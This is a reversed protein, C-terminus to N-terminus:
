CMHVIKALDEDITYCYELEQSGNYKKYVVTRGTHDKEILQDAIATLFSDDKIDAFELGDNCFPNDPVSCTFNDLNSPKPAALNKPTRFGNYTTYTPCLDSCVNEYDLSAKGENSYKVYAKEYAYSQDLLDLYNKVAGFDYHSIRQLVKKPDSADTRNLTRLLDFQVAPGKVRGKLRSLARYLNKDCLVPESSAGAKSTTMNDALTLSALLALLCLQLCTKKM